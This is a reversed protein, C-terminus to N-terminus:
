VDTFNQGGSRKEAHTHAQTWERYGVLGELAVKATFPQELTLPFQFYSNLLFVDPSVCVSKQINRVWM